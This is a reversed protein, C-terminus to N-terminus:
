EIHISRKEDSEISKKPTRPHSHYIRWPDSSSNPPPCCPGYCTEGQCDRSISQLYLLRLLGLRLCSRFSTYFIPLSLCVNDESLYVSAESAGQQTIPKVLLGSDGIFYQDDISFGPRHRPFAVYQPRVMMNLEAKVAFPIAYPGSFPSARSLLLESVHTGYLYYPM